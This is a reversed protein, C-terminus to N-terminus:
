LALEHRTRACSCWQGFPQVDGCSNCRWTSWAGPTGELDDLARRARLEMAVLDRRDVVLRAVDGPNRPDAYIGILIQLLNRLHSAPTDGAAANAQTGSAVPTVNQGAVPAAAVAGDSSARRPL